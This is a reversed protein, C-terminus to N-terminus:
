GLPVVNQVGGARILVGQGPVRTTLQGWYGWAVSVALLAILSLLALWSKPTTVRLLQDLQEPSSMRELAVKRFTKEADM